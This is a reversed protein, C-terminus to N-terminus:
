SNVGGPGPTPHDADTHEFRARLPVFLEVVGVILLLVALYPLFGYLIVLFILLFSWIRMLRRRRTLLGNFFALIGAGQLFFYFGTVLAVNWSVITLARAAFLKGAIIGCMGGAFPVFLFGDAVFRSLDTLRNGAGGRGSGFRAGLAADISVMIVPIPLASYLLVNLLMAYVADPSFKIGLVAGDYGEPLYPKFAASLENATERIVGTVASASNTLAIFALWLLSTAVGALAVRYRLRVNAPLLVTLLPILFFVSGAAVGMFPSSGSQSPAFALFMVGVLADLACAIAISFVFARKGRRFLAFFLPAAYFFALVPVLRMCVVAAVASAVSVPLFRSAGERSGTNVLENV